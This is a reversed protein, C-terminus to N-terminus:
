CRLKVGGSGRLGPSMYDKCWQREEWGHRWLQQGSWGAEEAMHAYRAEKKKRQGAVFVSHLGGGPPGAGVNRAAEVWRMEDEFADDFQRKFEREIWGGLLGGGPGVNRNEHVVPMAGTSHRAAGTARRATALPAGSHVQRRM